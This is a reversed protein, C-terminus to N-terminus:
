SFATWQRVLESTMLQTEEWSAGLNVSIRLREGGRPVTPFRIARLEIGSQRMSEAFLLARDDGPILLPIIPSKREWATREPPLALSGLARLQARVWESRRWLERRLEPEKELVEAAAVVMAPLAPPAATTYIFSRASNILFSKLKQSGLVCAGASGFAKGFTVVVALRDWHPWERHLGKGDEGFIGAAHAEDMVLFAGSSDLVPRLENWDVFDGDMSFLSESVVLSDPGIGRVEAWKGHPVIQKRRKALTIADILSAHNKEDSFITDTLEGLARVVGLNALYGSSFWLAAPAGFFEAIREEAAEYEGSNGGLLRSGRSGAGGDRLAKIGAEIVHPHRSLGLYDNHVFSAGAPRALERLRHQARLEALKADMESSLTM